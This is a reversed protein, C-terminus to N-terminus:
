SARKKADKTKSGSSGQVRSPLQKANTGSSPKPGAGRPQNIVAPATGGRPWVNGWGVVFSQQIISVCNGVFWYLSLAAPVQLSFVAIMLPTFYVMMRQTQQMQKEQDTPNASPPQQMMKTQLFTTAAALLPFVLFAVIPVTIGGITLMGHQTPLDNLNPIFWFHGAWHLPPVRNRFVFYLASLIPAQVVLPACGVLSGFPNIGHEKWLKMTEAQLKQPDKKFKKQLEALQPAIKRQEAMTRRSRVLQFQQLPALALRIIITMVIIAVGYAGISVFLPVGSAWM